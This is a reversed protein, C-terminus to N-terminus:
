IDKRIKTLDFLVVLLTKNEISLIVLLLHKIIIMASTIRLQAGRQVMEKERHSHFVKWSLIMAIHLICFYRSYEINSNTGM